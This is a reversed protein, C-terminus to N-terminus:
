TYDPTQTTCQRHQAPPLYLILSIYIYITQHNHIIHHLLPPHQIHQIHQIYNTIYICCNTQDKHTFSTQHLMYNHITYQINKTTYTVCLRQQYTMIMSRIHITIIPQRSDATQTSKTEATSKTDPTQLRPDTHYMTCHRHQATPLYLMLITYIHLITLTIDHRTIYTISNTHNLRITTFSSM